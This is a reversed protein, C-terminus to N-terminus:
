TTGLEVAVPRQTTGTFGVIPSSVRPQQTAWRRRETRMAGGVLYVHELVHEFIVDDDGGIVAELIRQHTQAIHDFAEALTRGVLNLWLRFLIQQQDWIELLRPLGAAQCLRHHFEYDLRAIAKRDDADSAAQMEAVIQELDSVDASTLRRAAAQYAVTELVTRILHLEQVSDASLEVVRTTRASEDVLLGDRKLRGLAERLPARSIQIRRALTEEVVRTGPGLTGDLIAARLLEYAAEGLPARAGQQQIAALGALGDDNM